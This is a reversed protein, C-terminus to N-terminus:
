PSYSEASESGYDISGSPGVADEWYAGESAAAESAAADLECEVVLAFGARVLEPAEAPSGPDEGSDVQDAVVTLNAAMDEPARGALARLADGDRPEGEANDVLQSFETCVEARSLPEAGSCAAALTMMVAVAALPRRM